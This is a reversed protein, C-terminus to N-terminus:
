RMRLSVNAINRFSDVIAAQRKIKLYSEERTKSDLTCRIFYEISKKFSDDPRLEKVISKGAKIITTTPIFDTPATFVRQASLTGNSGWVELECKYENYMGYSIQATVGNKNVMAGSGYMDVEYGAIYNM